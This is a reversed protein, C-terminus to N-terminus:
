RFSREPSGKRQVTRQEHCQNITMLRNRGIGGGQCVLFGAVLFDIIRQRGRVGGFHERADRRSPWSRARAIACYPFQQRRESARHPLVTQTGNRVWRM